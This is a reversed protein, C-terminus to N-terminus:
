LSEKRLVLTLIHWTSPLGEAHALQRYAKELTTFKAATMLGKSRATHKNTAGIAQLSRMLAITDPYYEVIKDQKAVALSFGAMEASEILTHPSYFDSVHPKDDVAAFAEKLEHLTGDALTAIVAVRGQKLIRHMEVFASRTDEVWQLMLSSFIADFSNSAFPIHRADASVCRHNNKVAQACMGSSIDFGVVSLAPRQGKLETAFVGTGCGADLILGAKPWYQLAISTAYSRVMRQLQAHEDYHAAARGFADQIAINDFM